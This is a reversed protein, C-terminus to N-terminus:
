LLVETYQRIKNSVGMISACEMLNHINKDKDAFYSTIAMQFVQIDMKNKNKIIDCICREKNYIRVKNGAFTSEETLGLELWESRVTHVVVGCDKLHKANYGRVVTVVPFFPERDSLNHLYLATEHSFIINRNRLQLVYLRDEWADTSIYVGPAVREMNNQRVYELVTYKSLGMNQADVLRIYGNQEELLADLVNREEM